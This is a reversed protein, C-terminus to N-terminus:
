TTAQRVIGHNEKWLIEFVTPNESFFNISCFMHQYGKKGVHHVFEKNYYM